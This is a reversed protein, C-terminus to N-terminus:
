WRRPRTIEIAHEYIELETAQPLKRKTNELIRERSRVDPNISAFLKKLEDLRDSLMFRRESRLSTVHRMLFQYESDTLYGIRHGPRNEIANGSRHYGGLFVKGFGCVFVCVDTLRETRESDGYRVGANELIYHCVEHALIACAAQRDLMFDSNVVVEVYGDTERFQGAAFALNEIRVRPVLAPIDFGPVHWRAHSLYARVIAEASSELYITSPDLVFDARNHVEETTWSRRALREAEFELDSSKSTERAPARDTRVVATAPRSSTSRPEVSSFLSRLLAWSRQVRWPDVSTKCRPCRAKQWLRGRDLRISHLRNSCLVVLDSKGM